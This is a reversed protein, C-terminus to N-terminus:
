QLKALKGNMGKCHFKDGQANMLSVRFYVQVEEGQPNMRLLSISVYNPMCAIGDKPQAILLFKHEEDNFDLFTSYKPKDDMYPNIFHDIDWSFTALKNGSATASTIVLNKLELM